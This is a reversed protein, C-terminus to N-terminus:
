GNNGEVLLSLDIFFKAAWSIEQRPFYQAGAGYSGYFGGSPNQLRQLCRFARQAPERQGLKWWAIALQALGTACVWSM